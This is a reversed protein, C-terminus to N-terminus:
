DFIKSQKKIAKVLDKKLKKVSKADQGQVKIIEEKAEGLIIDQTSPGDSSYGHAFWSNITFYPYGKNNSYSEENIYIVEINAKVSYDGDYSDASEDLEDAYDDMGHEQLNYYDIDFDVDRLEPHAKLLDEKAYEYNEDNLETIKDDILSPSSGSGYLMNVTTTTWGRIGMTSNYFNLWWDDMPQVRENENYPFWYDDLASLASKIEDSILEQVDFKVEDYTGKKVEDIKRILGRIM